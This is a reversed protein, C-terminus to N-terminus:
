RATGVIGMFAAQEPDETGMLSPYVAIEGFGCTELLARYEAETYAQYSAAHRMVDGTIADVIYYRTTAVCGEADWFSEELCLHPKESFLGAQAAYWTPQQQGMARIADFTHPELLLKGGPALAAHCHELIQRADAPRFVNFEGYILMALGFGTGYEARRIDACHFACDLGERTAIEQAHSISAPGYDIAVCRHGLRALQHAYLGPGCGLDLVTASRANLVSDHIWRVHKDIKELRRSAADHTQSLHEQLMRASFGPEHWPINDGEAWPTPPRERAVIESLRMRANGPLTTTDVTM